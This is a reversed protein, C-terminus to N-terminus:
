DGKSQRRGCSGDCKGANRRCHAFYRYLAGKRMVAVRDSIALTEPLDSSIVMIAKGKRPLSACCATSKRNRAWM